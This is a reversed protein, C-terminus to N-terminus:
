SQARRFTKPSERSPAPTADKTPHRVWVRNTVSSTALHIGQKLSIIYTSLSGSPTPNFHYLVIIGIFTREFLVYVKSILLYRIGAVFIFLIKRPLPIPHSLRKYISSTLLFIEAFRVDFVYPHTMFSPVSRVFRKLSRRFSTYRYTAYYANWM